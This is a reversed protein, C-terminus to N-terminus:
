RWMWEPDDRTAEVLGPFEVDGECPGPGEQELTLRAPQDERANVRVRPAPLTRDIEGGEVRAIVWGPPASFTHPGGGTASFPLAYAIRCAPEGPFSPAADRTELRNTFSFPTLTLDTPESVRACKTQAGGISLLTRCVSANWPDLWSDIPSLVVVDRSLSLPLIESRAPLADLENNQRLLVRYQRRPRFPADAASERKAYPILGLMVDHPGNMQLGRHMRSLSWGEAALRQHVTWTSEYTWFIANRVMPGLLVSLALAAWPVGSILRALRPHGLREQLRVLGYALVIVVPALVPPWYLWAHGGKTVGPLERYMMFVAFPGCLCVAVVASRGLANLKLFRSRLLRALVVTVLIGPLALLPSV